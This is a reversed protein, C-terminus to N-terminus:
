ITVGVALEMVVLTKTGLLNGEGLGSANDSYTVDNLPDNGAVNVLSM